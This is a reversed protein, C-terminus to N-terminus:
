LWVARPRGDLERVWEGSGRMVSRSGDGHPAAHLGSAVRPVEGPAVDVRTIVSPVDSGVTGLGGPSGAAATPQTMCTSVVQDRVHTSLATPAQKAWECTGLAGFMEHRRPRGEPGSPHPGPTLCM